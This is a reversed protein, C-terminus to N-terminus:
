LSWAASPDVLILLHCLRSVAPIRVDSEQEECPKEITVFGQLYADVKSLVTYDDVASM